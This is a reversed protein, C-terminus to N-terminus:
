KKNNKKIEMYHFTWSIFIAMPLALIAGVLLQEKLENMIFDVSSEKIFNYHFLFDMINWTVLLLLSVISLIIISKVKKLLKKESRNTKIIFYYVIAAISVPMLLNNVFFLYSVYLFEDFSAGKKYSIFAGLSLASFISVVFSTKLIVIPKNSYYEKM